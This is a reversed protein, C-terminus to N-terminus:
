WNTCTAIMLIKVLNGPANNRTGYITLSHSTGQRRMLSDNPFWFKNHKQTIAKM